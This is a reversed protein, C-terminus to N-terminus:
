VRGDKTDGGHSGMEGTHYELCPRSLSHLDLTSEGLPAGRPPSTSPSPPTSSSSPPVSRDLSPRPQTSACDSEVAKRVLDRCNSACRANLNGPEDPLAVRTLTLEFPGRTRPATSLCCDVWEPTTRQLICLCVIIGEFIPMARARGLIHPCLPPSVTQFQHRWPPLSAPSCSSGFLLNQKPPNVTTLVACRPFIAFIDFAPGAQV